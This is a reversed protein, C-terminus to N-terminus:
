YQDNSNRFTFFIRFIVGAVVEETVNSILANAFEPYVKLIEKQAAIFNVNNSYQDVSIINASGPTPMVNPESPKFDINNKKM